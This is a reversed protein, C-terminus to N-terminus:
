IFGARGVHQFANTLVSFCGIRHFHNPAFIQPDVNVQTHRWQHDLFMRLDSPPGVGSQHFVSTTKQEFKMLRLLLSFIRNWNELVRM